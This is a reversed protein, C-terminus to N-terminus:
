GQAQEPHLRYPCNRCSDLKMKAMVRSTRVTAQRQWGECAKPSIKSLMGPILCGRLDSREQFSRVQAAVAEAKSAARQLRGQEVRPISVPGRDPRKRAKPASKREVRRPEPQAPNRPRTSGDSPVPHRVIWLIDGRSLRGCDPESTPTCNQREDSPEPTNAEFMVAVPVAPNEHNYDKRAFSDQMRSM